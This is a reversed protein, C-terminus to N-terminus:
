YKYCKRKSSRGAMGCTYELTDCVQLLGTQCCGIFRIDESTECDHCVSMTPNPLQNMHTHACARARAHRPSQMTANPLQNMHTHTCVHTRMLTNTRTHRPSQMTPNPLQNMHTHTHARARTQTSEAAPEHTHTHTHSRAHRPSQITPNPLQNTHTRTGPLSCLRIRWSSWTHTHPHVRMCAHIYMYTHSIM